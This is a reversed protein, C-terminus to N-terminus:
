GGRALTLYAARRAPAMALIDAESWSFAAAIEAVEGLIRLAASEVERWLHDVVDLQEVWTAACDACTLTINLEGKAEREEILTDLEGTLEDDLAEPREVLQARVFSRVEDEPLRSAAALDSSNLPRLEIRSGGLSLAERDRHPLSAALERVDFEMELRAGCDPCTAVSGLAPGFTASRLHLLRRDREALPLSPLDSRDGASWLLVLARDLPARDTGAEWATVLGSATLASM